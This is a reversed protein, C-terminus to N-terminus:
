RGSLKEARRNHAWCQGLLIALERRTLLGKEIFFQGIKKEERRQKLLLQRVEEGTLFGLNQATLGFVDRKVSNKLITLVSNKDLYGMSIGLEGIKPRTAKQWAIASILQRWEIFGMRYLFRGFLLREQPLNDSYDSRAHVSRPSRVTRSCLERSAIYQRLANCARQLSIFEEQCSQVSLGSILARDPHIQMARKRFASNVGEEQLYDLFERSLEIEYGFLVRCAEFLHEERALRYARDTKHDSTM